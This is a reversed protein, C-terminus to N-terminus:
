LIGGRNTRKSSPVRFDVGRTVVSHEVSSPTSTPTASESPVRSESLRLTESNKVCNLSYWPTTHIHTHTCCIYYTCSNCKKLVTSKRNKQKKHQGARQPNHTTPLSELEACFRYYCHVARRKLVSRKKTILTRGPPTVTHVM